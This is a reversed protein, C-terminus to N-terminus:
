SASQVRYEALLRAQYSADGGLYYLVVVDPGSLLNAFRDPVVCPFVHFEGRLYLYGFCESCDGLGGNLQQSAISRRDFGCLFMATGTVIWPDGGRSSNAARERWDVAWSWGVLYVSNFVAFALARRPSWVHHKGSPVAQDAAPQHGETDGDDDFLRRLFKQLVSTKTAGMSSICPCSFAGMPVWPRNGRPPACSFLYKEGSFSPSFSHTPAGAM